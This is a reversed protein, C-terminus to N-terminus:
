KSKNHNFFDFVRNAIKIERDIYFHDCSEIVDLIEPELVNLMGKEVEKISGRQSFLMDTKAYMTNSAFLTIVIGLGM